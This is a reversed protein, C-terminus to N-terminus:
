VVVDDLAGGADTNLPDLVDGYLVGGVGRDLDDGVPDRPDGLLRSPAGRREEQVRARGPVPDRYGARLAYLILSSTGPLCVLTSSLCRSLVKKSPPAAPITAPMSRAGRLPLSNLPETM